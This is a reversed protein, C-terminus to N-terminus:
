TQRPESVVLDFRLGTPEAEGTVVTLESASIPVEFVVTVRTSGDSFGDIAVSAAPVAAEAPEDALVVSWWRSKAVSESSADTGTPIDATLVVLHHGSRARYARHNYTSKLELLTAGDTPSSGITLEAGTAVGASPPLAPDANIPLVLPERYPEAIQLRYLSPVAALLPPLRIV